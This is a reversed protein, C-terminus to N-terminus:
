GEAPALFFGGTSPSFKRTVIYHPVAAWLNTLWILFNKDLEAINVRTVAVVGKCVLARLNKNFIEMLDPWNLSLAQHCIYLLPSPPCGSMPEVSSSDCGAVLIPRFTSNAPAVLTVM